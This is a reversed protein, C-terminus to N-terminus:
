KFWGFRFFFWTKGIVTDVSGLSRGDLSVDRNDGLVFYEGDGVIFTTALGTPDTKVGEPLYASEDIKVDNRYVFGDRLEIVDGPKGIIRKILIRGDIDVCVVDGYDYDDDIWERIMFFRDGNYYNPEMSEGNVVGPRVFIMLVGFVALACAITLIWSIIQKTKNNIPEKGPKNESSDGVIGPDDFDEIKIEEVESNELKEINNEM